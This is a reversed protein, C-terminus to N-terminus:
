DLPKLVKYKLVTNSAKAVEFRASRFGIVKSESLDYELDQTFAPRATGDSFERHSISVTNDSLGGYILERKFSNVGWSEVTKFTV